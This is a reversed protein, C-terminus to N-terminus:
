YQQDSFVDYLAGRVLVTPMRLRSIQANGARITNLSDQALRRIGDSVNLQYIEALRLVLNTWLAETYEPPLNIVQTYTTFPAVELGRFTIHIEYISAQPVPWVFANGLPWAADYFIYQPWSSLSKLCIRNYDERSELIVLPYDVAYGPSNIFQRFFAAEIRNPRTTLNINGSPGVTYSLAGTAVVANDTTHFGTIWRKRMWLGIMGNLAQFADRNDEALATEGVGIVGAARLAFSVLDQATTIQISGSM